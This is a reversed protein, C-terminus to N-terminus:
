HNQPTILGDKLEFTAFEDRWAPPLAKDAIATALMQLQLDGAISLFRAQHEEDMESGLDDVLLLSHRGREKLFLTQGLRFAAATARAQGRSLVSAALKLTSKGESKSAIQVRVDARHPGVHTMRFKVDQGRQKALSEEFSDGVFGKFFGISLVIEPCLRRACDQVCKAMDEFCSERLATLTNASAGLEFDWVDLQGLQGMRLAANRQRLVHRFHALASLTDSSELVMGTDLWQRRENPAGYILEALGPLFVQVRALASVTSIRNVRTHDMQLEVPEGRTKAFDLRLATEDPALLFRGRVATSSQFHQILNELGGRRFSKGRVLLHVAELVTTKGSGNAGILLNFGPKFSLSAREIVRLHDVELRDLIM